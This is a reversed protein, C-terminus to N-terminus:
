VNEERENLSNSRARSSMSEFLPHLARRLALGEPDGLSVGCLRSRTRMARMEAQKLSDGAIRKSVYCDPVTLLM